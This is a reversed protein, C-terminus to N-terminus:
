AGSRRNDEKENRVNKVEQKSKSVEKNDKIKKFIEDITVKNDTPCYNILHPYKQYYELQKQAIPITLYIKYSVFAMIGIMFMKGFAGMFGSATYNMVMKYTMYALYPILIGIIIKRAKLTLVLSAYPSSKVKKWNKRTNKIDIFKKKFPNIKEKEM